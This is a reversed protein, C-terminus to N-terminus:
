VRKVNKAMNKEAYKPFNLRSNEDFYKRLPRSVKRTMHVPIRGLVKEMMALHEYDHHATFLLEGTLLEVLICGLSWM